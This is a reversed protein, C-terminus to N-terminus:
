RIDSKSKNLAAEPATYVRVGESVSVVESAATRTSVNERMGASVVVAASAAVRAVTEPREAESVIVAAASAAARELVVGRAGVSVVVTLSESERTGVNLRVAESVREVESARTRARM